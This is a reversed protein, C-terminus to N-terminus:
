AWREGGGGGGGGMIKAAVVYISGPGLNQLGTPVTETGFAM